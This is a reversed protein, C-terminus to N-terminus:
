SSLMTGFNLLRAKSNQTCLIHEFILEVLLPWLNTWFYSFNYYKTCIIYCAIFANCTISLYRFSTNCTLVYFIIFLNLIKIITTYHLHWGFYNKLSSLMKIFIVKSWKWLAQTSAFSWHSWIRGRGREKKSEGGGRDRKRESISLIKTDKM